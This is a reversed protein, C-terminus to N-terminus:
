AQVETATDVYADLRELTETFGTVMGIAEAHELHQITPFQVTIHIDCTGPGPEALRVTTPMATGAVPTGDPTSTGDLFRLSEHPEVEEYTARGWHEEDLEHDRDPRLRYRWLGGPRLDLEFVDCRWGSPGWWERLHHAETWCAWVLARGGRVSRTVVLQKNARDRVVTETM